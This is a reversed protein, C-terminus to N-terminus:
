YLISIPRRVLLSRRLKPMQHADLSPAKFLLFPSRGIPSLVYPTRSSPAEELALVNTSPMLDTVNALGPKLTRLMSLLTRTVPVAVILGLLPIIDQVGSPCTGLM